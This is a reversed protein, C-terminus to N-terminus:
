ANTVCKVFDEFTDDARKHEPDVLQFYCTPIERVRLNKAICPACGKDHKTPHLPCSLNQCTCFPSLNAMAIEEKSATRPKGGESTKRDIPYRVIRANYLFFRCDRGSKCVLVGKGQRQPLFFPLRGAKPM